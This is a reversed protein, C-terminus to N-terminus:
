SVLEPGCPLPTDSIDHVTQLSGSPVGDHMPIILIDDGSRAHRFCVLDNDEWAFCFEVGSHTWTGNMCSGDAMAISVKNSRTDYIERAWFDDSIKYTVTKGAVMSLWELRSIDEAAEIRELMNPIIDQARLSPALILLILIPAIFRM